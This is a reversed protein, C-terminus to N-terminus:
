SLSVTLYQVLLRIALTFVELTNCWLVNLRLSSKLQPIKQESQHKGNVTLFPNDSSFSQSSPKTALISVACAVLTIDLCPSVRASHPLSLTETSHQGALKTWTTPGLNLSSLSHKLFYPPSQYLFVYLTLSQGSCMFFVCARM